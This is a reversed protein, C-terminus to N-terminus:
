LYYTVRVDIGRTGAKKGVWGGRICEGAEAYGDPPAASPGGGRPSRQGAPRTVAPSEV